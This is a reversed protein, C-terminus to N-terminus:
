WWGKAPLKHGQGRGRPGLMSRRRLAVRRSAGEPFGVPIGTPIGPVTRAKVVVGAAAAAAAAARAGGAAVDAAGVSMWSTSEAAAASRGSFFAAM